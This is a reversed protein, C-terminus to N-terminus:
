TRNSICNAGKQWGPTVDQANEM